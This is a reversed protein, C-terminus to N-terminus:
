RISGKIDLEAKEKRGGGRFENYSFLKPGAYSQAKGGWGVGEREREVKVKRTAYLADTQVHLENYGVILIRM